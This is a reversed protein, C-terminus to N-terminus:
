QALRAIDAYRVPLDPELDEGTPPMWGIKMEHDGGSETRDVRAIL